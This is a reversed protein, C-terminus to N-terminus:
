RAAAAAAGAQIYWVAIPDASPLGTAHSASWRPLGTAHSASWRPLGTAHSASWRPLGTAHSASRRPLRTHDGRAATHVTYDSPHAPLIHGPCVLRTRCACTSLACDAHDAHWATHRGGGPHKRCQAISAQPRQQQTTYGTTLRQKVLPQDGANTVHRCALRWTHLYHLHAPTCTHLHLHLHACASM